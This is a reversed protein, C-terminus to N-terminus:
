RLKRLDDADGRAHRVSLIMAGFALVGLVIRGWAGWPAPLAQAGALAAVLLAVALLGLAWRAASPRFNGPM